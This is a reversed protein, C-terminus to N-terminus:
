KIRRIIKETVKKATSRARIENIYTPILRWAKEGDFGKAPILNFCAIFFNYYGLNTTLVRVAAPQSDGLLLSLVILPLAIALQTLVGGWAVLSVEKEYYPAEYVCVGHIFTIYVDHIRCGLCKAVYAHGAEHMLIIALYTVLWEVALLPTQIAGVLLATCIVLVSWHIHVPAGFIRISETAIFGRM